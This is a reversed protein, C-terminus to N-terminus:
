IYSPPRPSFLFGFNLEIKLHFGLISEFNTIVKSGEVGHDWEGEISALSFLHIKKLM